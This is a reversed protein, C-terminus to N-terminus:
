PDFSSEGIRAKTKERISRAQRATRDREDGQRRSYFVVLNDPQLTFRHSIPVLALTRAFVKFGENM